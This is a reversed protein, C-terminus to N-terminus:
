SAKKSTPSLASWPDALDPRLDEPQVGLWRAVDAVRAEPVFPWKSVAAQTIGLADALDKQRTPRYRAWAERARPDVRPRGRRNHIM